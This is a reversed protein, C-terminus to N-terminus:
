TYSQANQRRPHAARGQSQGHHLLGSQYLPSHWFCIQRYSSFNKVQADAAAFSLLTITSQRPQNSPLIFPCSHGFFSNTLHSSPALHTQLEVSSSRGVGLRRSCSQTHFSIWAVFPKTSTWHSSSHHVSIRKKRQERRTSCAGVLLMTWRIAFNGQCGLQRRSSPGHQV